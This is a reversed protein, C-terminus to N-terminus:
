VKKGGFMKDINEKMKTISVGEFNQQKLTSHRTNLGCEGYLFDEVQFQVKSIIYEQKYM